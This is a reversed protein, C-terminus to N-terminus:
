TQRKRYLLVGLAFGLLLVIAVLVLILGTHPSNHHPAYSVFDNSDVGYEADVVQVQSTFTKFILNSTTKLTLDVTVLHLCSSSNTLTWLLAKNAKQQVWRHVTLNMNMQAYLVRFILFINSVDCELLTWSKNALYLKFSM